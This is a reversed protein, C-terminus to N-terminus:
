DGQIHIEIATWGDCREAQALERYHSMNGGSKPVFAAFGPAM